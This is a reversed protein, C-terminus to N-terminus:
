RRGIDGEGLTVKELGGGVVVVVLRLAGDLEAADQKDRAHRGKVLLVPGGLRAGDLQVHAAHEDTVLDLVQQGLSHTRRMSSWCHLAPVQRAGRKAILPCPARGM